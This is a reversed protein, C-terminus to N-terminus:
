NFYHIFYNFTFASSRLVDQLGIYYMILGHVCVILLKKFILFNFHTLSSLKSESAFPLARFSSNIIVHLGIFM